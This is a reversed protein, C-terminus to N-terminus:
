TILNNLRRVLMSALSLHDLCEDLSDKIGYEHGRPNRIAMVTGSFMFRYGKQEDIESLNTLSTLKIKPSTESFADMMLSFGISSLGSLSQVKKDIYKYAEFTAQSYHGDDFLRLSVSEIESHINREQFPHQRESQADSTSSFQVNIRRAISEFKNILEDM